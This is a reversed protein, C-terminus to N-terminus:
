RHKSEEETRGRKLSLVMRMESPQMVMLVDFLAHITRCPRHTLSLLHLHLHLLLLSNTLLRSLFFFPLFFFFPSSFFRVQVTTGDGFKEITIGTDGDKQLRSGDTRIEIYTAGMKEIVMGEVDTEITSGDDNEQLQSGDPRKTIKVGQKKSYEIHTKDEAIEMWDGDPTTELRRQSDKFTEITSGDANTQLVSGNARMEIKGGGPIEQTNIVVLNSKPTNPGAAKKEKPPMPTKTPTSAEASVAADTSSPITAVAAANADASM